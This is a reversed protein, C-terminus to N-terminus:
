SLPAILGRPNISDYCRAGHALLCCELSVCLTLCVSLRVSLCVAPRVHMRSWANGASMLPQKIFVFAAGICTHQLRLPIRPVSMVVVDGVGNGVM